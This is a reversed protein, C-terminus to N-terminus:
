GRGKGKSESDLHLLCKHVAGHLPLDAIRAPHVWKFGAPGRLHVRGTKWRCQYVDMLLKFHTYTHRVTAVRDGVSVELNTLTKIHNGCVRAADHGGSVEGGPFEWLGGLLGQEARRVLLIRGKKEVIGAAVHRVPLPARKVRHPYESVADSKFARCYRAVPCATCDPRRPACVLAGLEMMAQNHDGPNLRDLLATALDKFVGHSAAQNVPTSIMFLRALVRKVNGDAVAHPKGFAISLVASAIYDGIGPLQKVADWSDPFRGELHNSIIGAAKYLNRARSYYGLGEWLKLVTQLEARALRFVDPFQNTFRHYYPKVTKVQTQQLMVESVWIRYPDATRRWPLDRRNLEYWAGLARRIAAATAPAIRDSPSVMNLSTQNPM